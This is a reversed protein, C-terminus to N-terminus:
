LSHAVSMLIAGVLGVAIREPFSRNRLKGLAFVMGLCMGVGFASAILRRPAIVHFPYYDILGARLSLMTFTLIWFAGILILTSRRRADAIAKDEVPLWASM